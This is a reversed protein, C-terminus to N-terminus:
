DPQDTGAFVIGREKLDRRIRWYTRSSKKLMTAFKESRENASLGSAQELKLVCMESDTLGFSEILTERWDANLRKLNIANRYYRISPETIIGIHHSMFDFVEEDYVDPINGLDERVYRHVEDATPHFKILLGRDEVAGVHKNLAKWSNTLICVKSKTTFETTSMGRSMSKTNWMITKEQWTQCLCKLINVCERDRYLGDVDDIFVPLDRHNYLKEYLCIASIRGEIWLYDKNPVGTLSNRSITSKGTGALGEIIMIELGGQNFLNVWRVLEVYESVRKQM